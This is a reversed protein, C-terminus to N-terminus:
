HIAALPSAQLVRIAVPARGKRRAASEARAYRRAVASVVNRVKSALARTLGGDSLDHLRNQATADNPRLL